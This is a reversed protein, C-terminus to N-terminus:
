NSSIVIPNAPAHVEGALSRSLAMLENIADWIRPVVGEERLEGLVDPVMALLSFPNSAARELMEGADASRDLWDRDRGMSVLVGGAVDAITVTVPTGHKSGIQVVASGEAAHTIATRHQRDSFRACLQDALAAARISGHFMRQNTIPPTPAPM